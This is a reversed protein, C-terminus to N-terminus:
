KFTQQTHLSAFEDDKVGGGGETPILDFALMGKAGM